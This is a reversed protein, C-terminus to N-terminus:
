AAASNRKPGSPCHPARHQSNACPQLNASADRLGPVAALGVAGIAGAVENEAVRPCWGRWHMVKVTWVLSQSLGTCIGAPRCPHQGARAKRRQRCREKRVCQGRGEPVADFTLCCTYTCQSWSRCNRLYIKQIFEMSGVTGLPEVEMVSSQM